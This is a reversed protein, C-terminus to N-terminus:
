KRRLEKKLSQRARHLLSEYAKVHLQMAAAAEAQSFGDYYFLQVAVHQHPPLANIAKLLAKDEAEAEMLAQASLAGDPMNSLIDDSETKKTRRKHDLFLNVLVRYFWTTFQGGGEPKWAFPNRWLRLFAEQVMDEADMRSGCIRLAFNFFRDAHRQALKEFAAAEGAQVAEILQEDSQMINQNTQKDSILRNFFVLGKKANLSNEKNKRLSCLIDLKSVNYHIHRLHPQM